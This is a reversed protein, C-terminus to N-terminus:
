AVKEPWPFLDSVSTGLKEAILHKVRDRPVIENREIKSITQQTLGCRRALELQTLTLAARRQQVRSGWTEAAGAQRDAVDVTYLGFTYM